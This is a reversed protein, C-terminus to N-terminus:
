PQIEIISLHDVYHRPTVTTISQAHRVLTEIRHVELALADLDDSVGPPLNRTSKISAMLLTVATLPNGIEHAISGAMELVTTLRVRETLEKQLMRTRVGVRVRALLEDQVFPKRVFDDAGAGMGEIADEAGSRATVLIAYRDRHKEDARIKKLLEIGGAGPMNWDILVVDPCYEEIGQWGSLGDVATLVDHGEGTLLAQVAVRYDNEDDIVLVKPQTTAAV